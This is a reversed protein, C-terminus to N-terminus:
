ESYALETKLYNAFTELVTGSCRVSTDSLLGLRYARMCLVCSYLNFHFHMCYRMIYMILLNISHRFKYNCSIIIIIM